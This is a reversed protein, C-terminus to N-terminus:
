VNDKALTGNNKRRKEILIKCLIITIEHLYLGKDPITLLNDRNESGIFDEYSYFLAEGFPMSGPIHKSKTTELMFYLLRTEIANLFSLYIPTLIKLEEATYQM